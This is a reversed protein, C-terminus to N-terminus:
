VKSPNVNKLSKPIIFRFFNIPCLNIVALTGESDWPSGRPVIGRQRLSPLGHGVFTGDDDLRRGCLRKLGKPFAAALGLGGRFLQPENGLVM